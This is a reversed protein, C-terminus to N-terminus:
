INMGQVCRCCRRDTFCWLYKISM